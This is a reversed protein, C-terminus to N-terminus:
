VYYHGSPIILLTLEVIQNRTLHSGYQTFVVGPAGLSILGGPWHDREALLTHENLQTYGMVM